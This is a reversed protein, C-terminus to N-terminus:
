EESLGRGATRPVNEGIIEISTKSAFFEKGRYDMKLLEIHYAIDEMPELSRGVRRGNTFSMYAAMLRAVAFGLAALRRLQWLRRHRCRLEAQAFGNLRAKGRGHTYARRRIGRATVVWQQLKHFIVSGPCYVMQHGDRALQLLLSTESGMARNVPSPGISEDYRLGKEFFRKLIWLNTGYPLHDKPFLIEDPGLDLTWARCNGRAFQLWKPDQGGPWVAISVGGFIGHNPWRKCAGCIEQLWDPRPMVDDDTFVVIEGLKLEDLGKNLACNKGSRPEFLYRIPLRGIFSEVVAKTNDKSNNDIVVFEVALNDRKVVCMAEMTERLIEARNYTPILVTIDLHYSNRSLQLITNNM